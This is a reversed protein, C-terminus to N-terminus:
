LRGVRRNFDEKMTEYDVGLREKLRYKDQVNYFDGNFYINEMVDNLLRRLQNPKMGKIEELSEARLYLKPVKGSMDRSKMSIKVANRILNMNNSTFEIKLKARECANYVADVCADQEGVMDGFILMEDGHRRANFTSYYPKATREATDFVIRNVSRMNTRQRLEGDKDVREKYNVQPLVNRMLSNNFLDNLTFHNSYGNAM